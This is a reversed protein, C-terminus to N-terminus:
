GAPYETQVFNATQLNNHAGCLLSHSLLVECNGKREKLNAWGRVLKASQKKRLQTDTYM